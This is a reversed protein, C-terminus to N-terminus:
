KPLRYARVNRGPSSYFQGNGVFDLGIGYHYTVPLPEWWKSIDEFEAVWIERDIGPIEEYMRLIGEEGEFISVRGGEADEIYISNTFSNRYGRFGDRTCRYVKPEEYTMDPFIFIVDGEKFENLGLWSPPITPDPNAMAVNTVVDVDTDSRDIYAAQEPDNIVRMLDIISTTEDTRTLPIYEYEGEGEAAGPRWILMLGATGYRYRDNHLTTEDPEILPPAPVFEHRLDAPPAQPRTIEDVYDPIPETEETFHMTIFSDRGDYVGVLDPAVVVDGYELWPHNRSEINYLPINENTVNLDICEFGLGADLLGYLSTIDPSTSGNTMRARNFATLLMQVSEERLRNVDITDTGTYGTDLMKALEVVYKYPYINSFRTSSTRAMRVTRVGPIFMALDQDALITGSVTNNLIDRGYFDPFYRNGTERNLISLLEYYRTQATMQPSVPEKVAAEFAAGDALADAEAQMKVTKNTLIFAQSFSMLILIMVMMMFIGLLMVGSGKELRNKIKLYLYLMYVKTHHGADSRCSKLQWIAM